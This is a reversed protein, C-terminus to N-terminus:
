QRLIKELVDFDRPKLRSAIEDNSLGEAALLIM